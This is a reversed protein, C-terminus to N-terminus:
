GRVRAARTRPGRPAIELLARAAELARRGEATLRYYRRPPRGDRHAREADERVRVPRLRRARPPQAGPVGHREAPADCRHRRFAYGAGHAVADLVRFAALGFTRPM